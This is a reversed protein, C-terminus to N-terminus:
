TEQAIEDTFTTGRLTSIPSIMGGISKESRSATRGIAVKHPYIAIGDTKRGLDLKGEGRVLSAVIV